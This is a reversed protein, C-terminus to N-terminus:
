EGVFAIYIYIYIYIYEKGVVNLVIEVKVM